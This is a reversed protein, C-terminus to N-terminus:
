FSSEAVQTKIQNQSEEIDSAVIYVRQDSAMQNLRDEESASTVSRVNAVETTLTPASAVAMATPTAASGSSGNAKTSKIKAIEAIGAATVAAASIAGVIQGYPPPITESAQMFAGIAGSLTDITAAAIRLGKIKEANKESNEEDEEYMDAISGLIGSTASAVGKLIDKQAKAKEEADKLDQKRLRMKERLANTEIEVSLDAREQDFALYADLDGRDLAEQKFQDLLALKKQNAAEEIAYEKAAREQDDEVLISNLEKQRNVAKDLANLRDEAKQVAAKNEEEYTKMIEALDAELQRDLEERLKEVGELVGDKVEKGLDKGAEKVEKKKSKAGAIITDAVAQGAQFNAKFAVGSKMEDGFAKAADGLGKVGQEKFVKIAAIVGKFPSVVFKLISNGVGIVGQIIKQFLGNSSVFSAIKTILDALLDVLNGLLGSLFDMVPKLADMGKKLANTGEEDDKLSASLKMFLSILISITGVVPSASLADFGSKVGMVGGKTADLGKKFTDAYKSFGKFASEYNGVNRQYNGQLADMEKLKDNVENIQGALEQFRQKGRDTSIDTNRLEEKLAAMRHVLSNYTESTGTAAKALDEMSASTAYMADKLANQNVKLEDLTNQYEETGIELEGLTDKLIKINNKLDNVSKVAEETGVKLITITEEAM